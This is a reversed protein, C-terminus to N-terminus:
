EMIKITTKINFTNSMWQLDANLIKCKSGHTKPLIDIIRTMVPACGRSKVAMKLANRRYTQPIRTSYGFESLKLPTNTPSEVIPTADEDLHEALFEAELAKMDCKVNECVVPDETNNITNMLVFHVLYFDNKKVMTRLVQMRTQQDKTPKYKYSHLIEYFDEIIDEDDYDSDMFDECPPFDSSRLCEEVNDIDKNVNEIFTNLTLSDRINSLLYLAKFIGLDSVVDDLIKMRTVNNDTVNYGYSTLENMMSTKPSTATVSSSSMNKKPASPTYDM